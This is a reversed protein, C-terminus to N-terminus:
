DYKKIRTPASYGNPPAICNRAVFQCFNNYYNCWRHLKGENYVDKKESFYCRKCRGKNKEM